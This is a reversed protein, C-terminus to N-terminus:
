RDGGDDGQPAKAADGLASRFRRYDDVTDYAEPRARSRNSWSVWGIALVTALLPIAWWAIVQVDM